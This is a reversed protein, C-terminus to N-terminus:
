QASIATEAAIKELLAAIGEPDYLQPDHATALERYDWGAAKARAAIPAIPDQEREGLTSASCRVFARRVRDMAESLRIPDTFTSAPQPRIRAVYRDRVEDPLSGEPVLSQLLSEPMPVRWAPGHEDIGEAILHSFSAPLLDVASQGDEPVLADIYILVRIREVLQDAAAGTAVMGGFSAGCLVVDHLGESEIVSTVDDILTSLSIAEEIREQSREGFGTLTPTFVRHGAGHLLEAVATWEWGGGWAGHVIVFTAKDSRRSV